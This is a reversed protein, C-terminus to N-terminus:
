LSCTFHGSEGNKLVDVLGDLAVDFSSALGEDIELMKGKLGFEFHWFDHFSM